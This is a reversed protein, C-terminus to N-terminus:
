PLPTLRDGRLPRLSRLSHLVARLATSQRPACGRMTQPVLGSLQRPSGPPADAKLNVQSSKPGPTTRQVEWNETDDHGGWLEWARQLTQEKRAGVQRDQRPFIM